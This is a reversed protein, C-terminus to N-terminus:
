WPSIMLGAAFTEIRLALWHRGRPREPAYRVDLTDTLIQLSLPGKRLGVDFIGFSTASIEAGAAARGQWRTASAAAALPVGGGGMGILFLVLFHRWQRSSGSRFQWRM